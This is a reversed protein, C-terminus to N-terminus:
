EGANEMQPEIGYYHLTDNMIDAIIPATIVGGYYSEGTPEDLLVLCVLQPDDMPAAAIFSSIYKESGRPTKESTGSKGGIRYGQVYATSGSDVVVREMAYRLKDSTDKSIPTRIVNPDFSKIVQNDNNTIEKVVHPTYMTGGNVLASVATVMQLPTIQFGQGFSATVLEVENFDDYAHFPGVAEGPLDFGTEERFGFAKYYKYFTEEGIKEGAMMLAPNCSHVLGELFNQSGHGSTQWCNIRVGGVVRYGPCYYGTDTLTLRKEELAVATTLLKFTSGPEYTDVVAKNRWMQQLETSMQQNYEDGELAEIEAMRKTDILTRPANLDYTPRTAMALIEGNKPNMVIACAGKTVGQEYFAKDLSREVFYQIVEDITLVLNYGDQAQYYKEYSSEFGASNNGGQMLRGTKGKLYSDYISELGELGQNDEGTFGIVHAAFTGNPYYRKTDEVLSIGRLDYEKQEAEPVKNGEADYGNIYKKVDALKESEIRKKIYQFSSDKTVLDYIKDREMELIPALTDAIQNANSYKKVERPDVVVTEVNASIALEKGNRDYITGRKPSIIKEKTQQELALTRLENGRVLQIVATNVSLALLLFAMVGAMIVVRKKIGPQKKKMVIEVERGQMQMFLIEIPLASFSGLNVGMYLCLVFM